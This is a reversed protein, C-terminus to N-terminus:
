KTLSVLSIADFHYNSISCSKKFELFYLAINEVKQSSISTKVLVDPRKKFVEM